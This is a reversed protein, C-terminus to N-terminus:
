PRTLPASETGAPSALTRPQHDPRAGADEEPPRPRDLVLHEKLSILSRSGIGRIRLLDELRKFRKMRTRLAVIDEARKKGIGPLRDLEAPSAENLVLRGDPLFASPPAPPQGEGSTSACPPPPTAPPAVEPPMAAREGDAPASPPSAPPAAEPLAPEALRPGYITTDRSREGLWAICTLVCCFGALKAVPVLWVSALLRARASSRAPEVPADASASHEHRAPAAPETRLANPLSTHLDGSRPVEVSPFSSTRNM